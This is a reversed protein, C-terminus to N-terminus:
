KKEAKLEGQLKKIKPAIIFQCYGANPNQAFYDQHYDEAPWFRALPVIETVIPDRFVKAATTRSAGSSWATRPDRGCVRASESRPILSTTRTGPRRLIMGIIPM